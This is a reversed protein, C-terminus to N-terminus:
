KGLKRGCYPCYKIDFSWTYGEDDNNEENVWSNEFIFQNESIWIRERIGSPYKNEIYSSDKDCYKCM